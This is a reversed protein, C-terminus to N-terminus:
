KGKQPQRARCGKCIGRIGMRYELAKFGHRRCIRRQMAELDKDCFEIVKGCALCVMHGHQEQERVAEYRERSRWRPAQRLLGCDTLLGLARYVTALSVGEGSARLAEHLEDADFHDSRKLVEGLVVRRQATLRLGHAALYARFRGLVDSSKKSRSM